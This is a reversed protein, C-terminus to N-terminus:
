VFVWSRNHFFFGFAHFADDNAADREVFILGLDREDTHRRLTSGNPACSYINGVGEHDSLFFVRGDVWMPWVLNGAIERGLRAFTGTGAADVWLQGATGGRYRKWRAPDIANRGLVTSGDAAIAFSMAHGVELARVAGGGAPVAFATTERIFPSGSDSTFFVEGGDPSWGCVYLAEAGLFTLRRPPGGLSPM